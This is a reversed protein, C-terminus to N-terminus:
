GRDATLFINDAAVQETDATTTNFNIGTETLRLESFYSVAVDWTKKVELGTIEHDTASVDLVASQNWDVTGNERYEIVVHEATDDTVNLSLAITGTPLGELYDITTTISVDGADPAEAVPVPNDSTMPAPVGVLGLAWSHKSSTETRFTLVVGGTSPDLQRRLVLVDKARLYGFEARDEITLCDGARYGLWRPKLPLVIPGAERANAIDYGAIQAAQDPTDGAYCQIMPYTVAKTRERGGDAALYESNRVVGAPVQEFDHDESRYTPVIGNIRDRRPQTTTISASGVLDEIGVTGISVRPTNVICSLTAGLRVPEGGGAQCLAKLANWKDDTTKVSGGSVWGNADAVNAAEIYADLDISDFTMGVGGVRISSPGQFWGRAYTIAQIWPNTSYAWTDQDDWRQTGSGGPYTSDERPDYCLVGRVRFQTTPVQTFTKSGKGDFVYCAM